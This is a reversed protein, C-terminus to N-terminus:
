SGDVHVIEDWPESGIHILATEYEAVYCAMVDAPVPYDRQANRGAAVDHSTTMVILRPSAGTMRALVLWRRRHEARTACVDIVVDRGTRLAAMAQNNMYAFHRPRDPQRELRLVDASLILAGAANATAWTTKGSGPIGLTVIMSRASIM